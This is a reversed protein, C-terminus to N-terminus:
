QADGTSEDANDHASTDHNDRTDDASGTSTTLMEGRKFQEASIRRPRQTEAVNSMDPQFNSGVRELTMQPFEDASANRWFALVYAAVAHREVYSMRDLRNKLRASDVGWKTDLLDATLGTLIERPLHQIQRLTGEWNEGLADCIALYEQDSFKPLVHHVIALYNNTFNNITEAM